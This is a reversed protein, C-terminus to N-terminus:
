PCRVIGQAWLCGGCTPFPSGFCDEENTELFNCGGCLTCPSFDFNQVRERFSQYELVNWLSYLDKELISGLAYRRVSREYGNMLCKHDYSLPVCPSLDGDWRVVAAGQEVFPCRDRSDGLDVGALTLPHETIMMQHVAEPPLANADIKPVELRHGRDSRRYIGSDLARLYLAENHLEETYPLVNTMLFRHAGLRNALRLLAPLDAINRKMAVFAIGIRPKLDYNSFFASPSRTRRSERFAGLNALVEPLAAGLRVDVYSEPTAGDLSIWLCDLGADILQESVEKTLLTANTILEVSSGLGKAQRVMEVIEPHALPEGLGGFFVTPPPSFPRLGELIRRFTDGSMQGISEDWVKRLCTRCELNCRNTAEVYLKSLQTIPKRLHLDDESEAFPIRSGPKLGFRAAVEPPLVIRGEDDVIATSRSRPKM